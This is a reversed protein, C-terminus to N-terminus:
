PSVYQVINISPLLVSCCCHGDLPRKLICLLHTISDFPLNTIVTKSNYELEDGFDIKRDLM